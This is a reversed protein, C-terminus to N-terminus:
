RPWRLLDAIHSAITDAALAKAEAESNARPISLEEGCSCPVWWGFTGHHFWGESTHADRVEDELYAVHAKADTAARLDEIMEKLHAVCGSVFVNAAGIRVYTYHMEEGDVGQAADCNRCSM